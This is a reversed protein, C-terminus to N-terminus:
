VHACTHVCMCVCMRLTEPNSRQGATSSARFSSAQRDSQSVSQSASQSGRQYWPLRPPALLTETFAGWIVGGGEEQRGISPKSQDSLIVSKYCVCCLTYLSLPSTLRGDAQQQGMICRCMHSCSWGWMPSNRHIGRGQTANILSVSIRVIQMPLFVAHSQFHMGAASWLTSDKSASFSMCHGSFFSSPFSNM